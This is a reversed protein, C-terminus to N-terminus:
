TTALVFGREEDSDIFDVKLGVVHMFDRRNILFLLNEIEFTKDGERKEDFGISHAVGACGGGKVTIRVFYNEPIRGSDVISKLEGLANNSLEFPINM